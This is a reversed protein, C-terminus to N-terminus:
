QGGLIIPLGDKGSGIIIVKSNPSNAIELTAEIGKWKLLKESIGESVIEQFKQIGAAEIQKREAEKREKDIRFEYEQSIQEQKLKSEIAQKITNPLIVSRILLADLDIFNSLLVEKTQAYIEQQIVERQSSYLEEPTYKGIVKRTSSRIEPIIIKNLYNEGISNHLLGVKDAMPRYRISVDIEIELGNSSLVGMTQEKELKKVDYKYVIDWPSKMHFGEGIVNEVDLGGGFRKFIVGKEGNGITYFISSSFITVVFIIGVVILLPVVWPKREM